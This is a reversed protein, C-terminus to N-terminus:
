FPSKILGDLGPAKPMAKKSAESAGSKGADGMQKKLADSMAASAAAMKEYDITFDCKPKQFYKADLDQNAWKLLLMTSHSKEGHAGATDGDMRTQLVGDKAKEKLGTPLEPMHVMKPDKLYRQKQYNEWFEMMIKGKNSFHLWSHMDSQMKSNADSMQILYEESPLGAITENKGTKSFKYNFDYENKHDADKKEVRKSSPIKNCMIKPTSGGKPDPMATIMWDEQADLNIIMRSNPPSAHAPAKEQGPYNVKTYRTYLVAARGSYFWTLESTMTFNEGKGSTSDMNQSYDLRLTPVAFVSTSALCFGFTVGTFFCIRIFNM